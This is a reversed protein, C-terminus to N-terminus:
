EETSIKSPHFEKFYTSNWSANYTLLVFINTTIPETYHKSFVKKINSNMFNNTKINNNM